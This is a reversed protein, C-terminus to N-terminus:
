GNSALISDIMEDGKGPVVFREFVKDAMETRMGTKDKFIKMKPTTSNKPCYLSVDVPIYRYRKGSMKRRIDSAYFADKKKRSYAFFCISSILAMSGFTILFGPTYAQVYAILALAFLLGIGLLLLALVRNEARKAVGVLLMRFRRRRRCRGACGAGVIIVLGDKVLIFRCM